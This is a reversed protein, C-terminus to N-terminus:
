VNFILHGGLEVFEHMRNTIGEYDCGKIDGKNLINYSYGLVRNKNWEESKTQDYWRDKILYYENNFHVILTSSHTIITRDPIKRIIEAKEEDSLSFANIFDNIKTKIDYTAEYNIFEDTFIDMLTPAQFALLAREVRLVLEDDHEMNAGSKFNELYEVIMNYEKINM